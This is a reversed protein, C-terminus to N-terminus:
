NVREWTRDMLDRVADFCQDCGLWHQFTVSGRARTEFCFSDSVVPRKRPKRRTERVITWSM